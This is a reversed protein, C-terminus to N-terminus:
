SLFSFFADWYVMFGIAHTNEYEGDADGHGASSFSSFEARQSTVKGHSTFSWNLTLITFVLVVAILAGLQLKKQAVM